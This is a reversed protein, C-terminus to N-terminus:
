TFIYHKFDLHHLLILTFTRTHTPTSKKDFTNPQLCVPTTHALSLGLESGRVPQRDVSSRTFLPALPRRRRAPFINEEVNRM